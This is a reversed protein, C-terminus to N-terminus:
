SAPLPVSRQRVLPHVGAPRELGRRDAVVELAALQMSESHDIWLHLFPRTIAELLDILRADQEDESLTDNWEAASNVVSEVVAQLGTQFLHNFETVGRGGVSQSQEMLWATKLLHFTERCCAWGRCRPWWPASSRRPPARGSFTARSVAKPWPWSCCRSRRFAELFGPLLRRAEEHDGRLFAQELALVVAEWALGTLRRAPQSDAAASGAPQRRRSSMDLGANIAAYLIQEKLVRRRDYEM